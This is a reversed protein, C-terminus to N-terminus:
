PAPRRAARPPGPSPPFPAPRPSPSTGRRRGWRRGLQLAHLRALEGAEDAAHLAHTAEAALAVDQGGPLHVPAIGRRVLLLQLLGDGGGRGLHPVRGHLPEGVPLEHELHLGIRLHLRRALLHVAGLRGDGTGRGRGLQRGDLAGREGVPELDHQRLPVLDGHHVEVQGEVRAVRRVLRFRLARRRQGRRQHPFGGFVAGPFLDALLRLRQPGDEAAPGFRVGRQQREGRQLGIEVRRQRQEGVHQQVGSERLRIELAVALAHHGRHLALLGRRGGGGPPQQRQEQEALVVGVAARAHSVARRGRQGVEPAVVQHGEM